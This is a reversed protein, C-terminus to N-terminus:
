DERWSVLKAKKIKSVSINLINNEQELTIISNEYATLKGYIWENDTMIKLSHDLFVSFEHIDKINRNIGPSSVELHIDRNEFMVSLRPYILKYVETCDNITTNHNKGYIVIYIHHEKSINQESISVIKFGAKNILPNLSIYLQNGEVKNNM